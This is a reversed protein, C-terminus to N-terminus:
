LGLENVKVDSLHKFRYDQCQENFQLLIPRVRQTVHVTVANAYNANLWRKNLM